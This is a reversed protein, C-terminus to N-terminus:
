SIRYPADVIHVRPGCRVRLLTRLFLGRNNHLIGAYWRSMVLDPIVVVVDREPNENELRSVFDVFPQFFLRYDSTLIVLKPQPIGRARAPNGILLEWNDSLDEIADTETKVQVVYVETSLRLAFKLGHQMM